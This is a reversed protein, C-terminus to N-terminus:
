GKLGSANVFCDDQCQDLKKLAHFDVADVTQGKRHKALVNVRSFVTACHSEAVRQLLKMAPSSIRFFCLSESDDGRLARREEIVNDLALNCLRWAVHMTRHNM